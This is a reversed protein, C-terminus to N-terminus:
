RYVKKLLNIDIIDIFKNKVKILGEDEMQKLARSLAPRTVGFFVALNSQSKDLEVTLSDTPKKSILYSAIKEKITKLSLFQIRGTLFQAKESVLVLINELVQTHEQM